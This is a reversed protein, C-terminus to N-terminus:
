RQRFLCLYFTYRNFNLLRVFTHCRCNHRCQAPLTNWNSSLLCDRYSRQMNLMRFSIQVCHCLYKPQPVRCVCQVLFLVFLFLFYLQRTLSKLPSFDVRCINTLLFRHKRLPMHQTALELSSISWLEGPIVFLGM